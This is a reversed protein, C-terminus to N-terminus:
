ILNFDYKFKSTKNNNIIYKNKEKEKEKITENTKHKM